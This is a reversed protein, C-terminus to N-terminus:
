QFAREFARPDSTRETEGIHWVAWTYSSYYRARSTGTVIGTLLSDTLMNAVRSLGLPDRGTPDLNARTTWRPLLEFPISVVVESFRHSRSPRLRCGSPLFLVGIEKPRIINRRAPAM